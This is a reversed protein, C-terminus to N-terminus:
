GLTHRHWDTFTLGEAANLPNEIVCVSSVLYQVYSQRTVREKAHLSYPIWDPFCVSQCIRGTSWSITLNYRLM